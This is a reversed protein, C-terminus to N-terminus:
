IDCSWRERRSGGVEVGIVDGRSGSSDSLLPPWLSEVEPIELEEEDDNDDDPPPSKVQDTASPPLSKLVTSPSVLEQLMRLSSNSTTQLLPPRLQLAPKTGPAAPPLAPPSASASVAPSIFTSSVITQLPPRIAAATTFIRPSQENTPIKLPPSKAEASSSSSFVTNGLIRAPPPAGHRDHRQGSTAMNSTASEASTARSMAASVATPETTKGKRRKEEVMREGIQRGLGLEGRRSSGNSGGSGSRSRNAREKGEMVKASPPPQVMWRTESRHTPATSVVPPHLDNVEPNRVTCYENRFAHGDESGTDFGWLFEDERQYRRRNWGDESQRGQEVEATGRLSSSAVVTDASSTGTGTSNGTVLDRSSGPETGGGRARQQRGKERDKKKLPPGPGLAMEERWYINTSFPSPHPYLGEGMQRESKSRAAGKRRRRRYAM